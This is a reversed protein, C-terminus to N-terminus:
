LRHTDGDYPLGDVGQESMNPDAPEGAPPTNPVQRVLLATLAAVVVSVWEQNSVTGDGLADAIVKQGAIVLPILAVIFKAYRSM